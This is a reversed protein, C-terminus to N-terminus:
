SFIAGGTPYSSDSLIGCLGCVQETKPGGKCGTGDDPKSDTACPEGAASEGFRQIRIYGQEGWSKGWSNRVLWYDAGSDPGAKFCQPKEFPLHEFCCGAKECEEKNDKGCDERNSKSVHCDGGANGSGYGVLQIAHDVDTGCKGDYVGSEYMQWPEAAASIAIPGIDVVANMLASYNNAPLRVVGSVNGVPKVKSKDCTGTTGDYPYSDETTVGAEAYAFGLWQTAGECGGTGGCKQPNPMCSVFQQESLELLKGFKIALHSEITEATSFAWCSGCAGQNKPQTVVNKERWDLSDPLSSVPAHSSLADNSARKEEPTLPERFHGGSLLMKKKFDDSSLDTFDNVGMLWNPKPSQSNHAQIKKMNAAFAARESAISAPSSLDHIYAKSFDKAYEEFSYNYNRTALQQANPGAATAFSFSLAAIILDLAM